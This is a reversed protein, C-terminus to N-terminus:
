DTQQQQQQLMAQLTLFWWWRMRHKVPSAPPDITRCESEARLREDRREDRTLIDIKHEFRKAKLLVKQRKCCVSVQWERKM